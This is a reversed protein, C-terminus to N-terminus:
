QQCWNNDQAGVGFFNKMWRKFCLKM